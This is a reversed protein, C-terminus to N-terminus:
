KREYLWTTIMNIDTRLKKEEALLDFQAAMNKTLKEEKVKKAAKLMEINIEVEVIPETNM